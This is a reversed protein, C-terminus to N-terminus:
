LALPRPDMEGRGNKKQPGPSQTLKGWLSRALSPFMTELASVGTSALFEFDNESISQAETPTGDTTPLHAYNNWAMVRKSRQDKRFFHADNRAVQVSLPKGQRASHNKYIVTCVDRTL